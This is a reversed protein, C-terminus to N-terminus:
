VDTDDQSQSRIVEKSHIENEQNTIHRAIQIIGWLHHIYYQPTEPNHYM